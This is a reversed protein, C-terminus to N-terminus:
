RLSRGKQMLAMIFKQDQSVFECVRHTCGALRLLAFFASHTYKGSHNMFLKEGKTLRIINGGVNASFDRNPQFYKALLYVGKQTRCKKLIFVLQGDETGIGVSALPAFAFNRNLSNDYGALTESSYLEGDVLLFDSPRMLRGIMRCMKAPSFAGLTNGLILYLRPLRDPKLSSLHTEADAKWARYRIRARIAEQCAMELLALSSDLPWYYPNRGSRIMERLLLIDKTGQGAGISVVEMEEPLCTAITTAAGSILDFSRIYNRYAGDQCLDLWAKVSFPFWYFFKEPLRRVQFAHVFQDALETETLLIEIQM